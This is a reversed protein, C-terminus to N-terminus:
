KKLSLFAKVGKGPSTEFIIAGQISKIRSEVNELGGKLIFSNEAMGVGNDSYNIYWHNQENKFALVVLTAESHKRMNVLLEQLIRFIEIQHAPDMKELEVKQIDKLIITTQDTTFSTLMRKLFETFKEGTEIVSNQHSIDRTLLYVEELDDLVENPTQDTYQIKNMIQVVDNAVEDHIKKAIRTETKYVEARKEQIHKQRRYFGIAVFGLVIAGTTAAGIVNRTKEKELELEKKSNLMKLEFNETRNKESDYKIKVFRNKAQEKANNLSDNIRLYSTYYQKTKPANLNILKQLAELQDQPSNQRIATKYMKEAYSLAITPDIPTYYDGLHAYSAILGYVDQEEERIKLADLLNSEVKDIDKNLWRTYALNDIIRAKTKKSEIPLKVLSDLIRIAANYDKFDRYANAKNQLYRIKDTDKKVIHIAKDYWYIAEKFDRQKRSSIALCNYISTLFVVNNEDIFKLAEVATNDSGIYDGVDSQIIAMYVLGRGVKLSDNIKLYIDNSLNYSVYASDKQKNLAYYYGKLAYLSAVKRQDENGNTGHIYVTTYHIASDYQRLQGFLNIKYNLIQDIQKKNEDEKQALIYAKNSHKLRTSVDLSDIKMKNLHFDLSDLKSEFAANYKKLTGGYLAISLFFGCFFLYTIKLNKM